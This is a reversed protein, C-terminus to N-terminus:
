RQGISWGFYYLTKTAEDLCIDHVDKLADSGRRYSQACIATSPVDDLSRTGDGWVPVSCERGSYACDKFVQKSSLLKHVASSSLVIKATRSNNLIFALPDGQVVTGGELPSSDVLEAGIARKVETDFFRVAGFVMMALVVISIGSAIWFSRRM